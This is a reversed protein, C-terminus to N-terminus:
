EFYGYRVHEIDMTRETPGATGTLWHAYFTGAFLQMKAFDFRESWRAVEEGDVQFAVYDPYYDIRYDHMGESPDFDLPIKEKFIEGPEDSVKGPVFKAHNKNHITLWLQWQGEYNLVEMDIEHQADPDTYMFFGSLEADGDPVQMRSEYSGYGFWQHSRVQGSHLTEEPLDITVKRDDITVNEAMVRSIYRPDEGGDSWDIGGITREQLAWDGATMYSWDNSHALYFTGTYGAHGFSEAAGDYLDIYTDYFGEISTESSDWPIELVVTEGPEIAPSTFLEDESHGYSNYDRTDQYILKAELRQEVDTKNKVTVEVNIEDGIVYRGNPPKISIVDFVESSVDYDVPTNDYDAQDDAGYYTYGAGDRVVYAGGIALDDDSAMDLYGKDILTTVWYKEGTDHSLGGVDAIEGAREILSISAAEAKNNANEILTGVAPVAIIVTLALIALTAM